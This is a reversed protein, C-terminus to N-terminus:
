SGGRFRRLTEELSPLKVGVAQAKDVNLSTNKPRQAKWQFQNQLEALTTKKLLTTPLNFEQCVAQAFEFRTVPRCSGLHFLGKAGQQLLMEIAEILDHVDLANYSQDEPLWVVRGARISEIIFDPFSKKRENRGFFNTRIVLAQPVHELTKKEGAWKTAGYVNLPHPSDQERYDGKEGDFVFDTSIYVFKANLRAAERALHATAEGHLKQAERPHVECWEIDTSAAAHIVIEPRFEELIETIRTPDMLNGFYLQSQDLPSSNEHVLGGVYYKSPSSSSIHKAWVSGLLGSIGTIFLKKM